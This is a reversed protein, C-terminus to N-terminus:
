REVKAYGPHPQWESVAPRVETSSIISTLSGLLFDALEAHGRAPGFITNAAALAAGGRVRRLEPDALLRNVAAAFGASDDVVEVAGAGMAEIGQMTVNTAVISKGNALAEVLKIKLGSGGRLPSVVVAVKQYLASLDPLRGLLNVTDPVSGVAQGVTGAVQLTARSEATVVAPWVEDIFWRLGDVNAATDSGVFLTEYGVGPQPLSVPKAIMPAVIVRQDPLLRRVIDAEDAQIAVVADAQELLRMETAEDVLGAFDRTGFGGTPKVQRSFLDHMVIASPADPRLAYPFSGALFAYDAILMDAHPKAYRAIFLLDRDTWPLMVSYPARAVRLKRRLGLRVLLRDAITRVAVILVRPDRALFVRGLQWAGHIKISSFVRMEPAMVLVPVRGFIGPSPCVLHIAIGRDRLVECISLLYASSGSAANVVRQRSIICASPGDTTRRVVKPRRRRLLSRSVASTLPHRLLPIVNPRGLMIRVAQGARQQKLAEILSVFASAREISARRQDLATILAPSAHSSTVRFADDAVLMSQLTEHSLRHSVSQGHKRYFYTADPIVRFRAGKDLLRLIFDYDEAIRLKPDYRTPGNRILEARIMPKLYGIVPRRGFIENGSIYDTTSIWVREQWRKGSLAYSPPKIDSDDFVLLNDAVIDAHDDEAAALMRAFREPHILDDSDVIAVWKGRAQDLARNRAAAPGNSVASELLRVRHDAAAIQRIRGLSDDTSGDDAVIVEIGHITQALVTRLADEIYRGGNFNAMIVSITCDYTGFMGLGTLFDAAFILQKLRSDM